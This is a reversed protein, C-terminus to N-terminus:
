SVMETRLKKPPNTSCSLRSERIQGLTDPPSIELAKAVIARARVRALTAALLRARVARDGVHHSIAAAGALCDGGQKGRGQFGDRAVARSDIIGRRWRRCQAVKAGEEGALERVKMNNAEIEATIM